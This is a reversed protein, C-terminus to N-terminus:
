KTNLKPIIKKLVKGLSKNWCKRHAEEISYGQLYHERECIEHDLIARVEKLSLKSSLKDLYIIKENEEWRAFNWVHSNLVKVTYGRYVFQTGPIIGAVFITRGSIDLIEANAIRKLSESSGYDHFAEDLMFWSWRGTGNRRGRIPFVAPFLKIGLLDEINKAASYSNTSIFANNQLKFSYCYEAVKRFVEESYETSLKELFNDLELTDHSITLKEYTKPHLL